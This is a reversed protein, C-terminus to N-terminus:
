GNGLVGIIVLRDPDGGLCGLLVEMGVRPLFSAGVYAGALSSAVRIPASDGANGITGAGQAHAHDAPDLGHVRVRVRGDE